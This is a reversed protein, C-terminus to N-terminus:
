WHAISSDCSRLIYVGTRFPGATQLVVLSSAGSLFSWYSFRLARWLSWPTSCYYLTVNQSYVTCKFQHAGSLSETHLTPQIFMTGSCSVTGRLHSIVTKKLLHVTNKSYVLFRHIALLFGYAWLCKLEPLDQLHTNFASPCLMVMHLTRQHITSNSLLQHHALFVIFSLLM